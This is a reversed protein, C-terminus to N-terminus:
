PVSGGGVPTSKAVPTFVRDLNDSTNRQSNFGGVINGVHNMELTWQGLM